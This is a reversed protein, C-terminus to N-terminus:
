ACIRLAGTVPDRFVNDIKRKRNDVGVPEDLSGTYLPALARGALELTRFVYRSFSGTYRYRRICGALQERLEDEHGKWRSIHHHRESWDAITYAMLEILEEKASVNGRQAIRVLIASITNRLRKAFGNEPAIFVYLKDEYRRIAKKVESSDRYSAPVNKRKRPTWRRQFERKLAGTVRDWDIGIVETRVNSRIFRYVHPAQTLIWSSNFTEPNKEALLENLTRAATDLDV